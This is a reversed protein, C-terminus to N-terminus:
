YVSWPNIVNGSKFIMFHLHPGTSNGTSGIYGIVQGRTVYQGNKCNFKSLHGYLASYNNGVALTICNGYGGYWSARTIVGNAIAYVPSGNTGSTLCIDLGDHFENGHFPCVRWGYDSTIVINSRTPWAFNSTDVKGGNRKIIADANGGTRAAEAALAQSEARLQEEKRRWEDAEKKYKKKLEETEVKSAELSIQQDELNKKMKKLKKHQKELDRLMDQDSELIKQVMGINSMLDSISQSSLIVDVYGVTGTKYMATLRDGLDENQEDIQKQKKKINKKTKVVKAETSKIEEQLRHLAQEAEHFNQTAQAAKKAAAKADNLKSAATAKAFAVGFSAMCMTVILLLTIILNRRKNNRM